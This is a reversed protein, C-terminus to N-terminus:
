QADLLKVDKRREAPVVIIDVIKGDKIRGQVTTNYPAHLKFDVDWEKPWAPFLLIKRDECQMLMTALTMMLNAGHTQDPVWDFNPGWFAPFRAEECKNEARHHVNARARQAYGLYAFHTDEQIWGRAVHTGIRDITTRALEINPKDVGFIRYPFVSYLEPNESYYDPRLSGRKGTIVMEAPALETKGDVQHTPLPPMENLMRKWQKRDKTDTLVEPLALLKGLTFILGAITTMPNAAEFVAELSNSPYFLLKGDRRPYHQDNFTIVERAYPLLDDRLFAEDQTYAYYDLMMALTEISAQWHRQIHPVRYWDIAKRERQKGVGYDGDQALGWFDMTECFFAGEHGFYRRTREKALPLNRIYHQFFPKMMDLDGTALMPWYILRTNMSWYSPGWQRVDPDGKTDFTGMKPWGVNFISGNFKIPFEGRGACATIWRQLAYAQSVKQAQGQLERNANATGHIWSRNWFDDWWQAHDARAKAPSIKTYNQIQDEVKDLWAQPTPTQDTLVHIQLDFQRVAGTSSLMKPHDAQARMGEALMVGGFTRNNFPDDFLKEAGELNHAKLRDAVYSSPENRCHWAVRDNATELIKDKERWTELTAKMKFPTSSESEVHIVPHNADVWVTIATANTGEGAHITIRGQRLQLEQKFPSGKRFPNPELTVRIRGLKALPDREHYGSPRRIWADTKSIYFLLDGNQEVWVNLGIDGNGIPMSGASNVSPSDWIVNYSALPDPSAAFMSGPVMLLGIVTLFIRFFSRRGFSLAKNRM